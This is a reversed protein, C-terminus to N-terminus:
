EETVVIRKVERPFKRLFDITSCHNDEYGPILCYDVYEHMYKQFVHAVRKGNASAYLKGVKVKRKM